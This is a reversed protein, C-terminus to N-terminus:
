GARRLRRHVRSVVSEPIRLSVYSQRSATEAQGWRLVGPETAFIRRITKPSLNWLKALELISYHRELGPDRLSDEQRPGLSREVSASQPVESLVDPEVGLVKKVPSKEVFV